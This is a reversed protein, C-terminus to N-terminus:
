KVSDNLTVTKGPFDAKTKQASNDKNKMSKVAKDVDVKVGDVIIHGNAELHNFVDMARLDKLDEDSVETVVGKPTEFRVGDTALVGAGGKILIHRKINPLGSPLPKQAYVPFKWDSSITSYIFNKAM